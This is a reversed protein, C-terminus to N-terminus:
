TLHCHHGHSQVVVALENTLTINM